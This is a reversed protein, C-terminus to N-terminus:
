KWDVGYKRGKYWIWDTANVDGSEPRNEINHVKTELDAVRKCLEALTEGVNDSIFEKIVGKGSDGSIVFKAPLVINHAILRQIKTEGNPRVYFPWEEQDPREIGDIVPVKNVGFAVSQEVDNNYLFTDMRVYYKDLTHGPNSPNKIEANFSNLLTKDEIKWGGITGNNINASGNISAAGLYVSGDNLIKFPCDKVDNLETTYTLTLV